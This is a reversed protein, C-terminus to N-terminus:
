KNEVEPQNGSWPNNLTDRFTGAARQTVSRIGRNSGLKRSNQLMASAMKTYQDYMQSRKYSADDASFDYTGAAVLAAAKETWCEAAATFLDYTAVWDSDSPENGDSDDIPYREIVDELDADSYNNTTSEAILKRLRAVDSASAAM